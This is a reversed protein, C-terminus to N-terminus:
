PERAEDLRHIHRSRVIFLLPSRDRDKGDLEHSELGIARRENRLKGWAACIHLATFAPAM